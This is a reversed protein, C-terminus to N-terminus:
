RKYYLRSRNTNSGNSNGFSIVLSLTQRIFNDNSGDIVKDAKDDFNFNFLLQTQLSINPTFKLKLGAGMPIFAGSGEGINSGYYTALGLGMTLYPAIFSEESLIVGNNLKYKLLLSIDAKNGSFSNTVWRGQFGYEGDSLQLSGDFNPSIYRNVGIGVYDKIVVIGGYSEFKDQTNFYGKGQDGRYENKGTSLEFAWPNDVDQSFLSNSFLVFLSAIVIFSKKILFM